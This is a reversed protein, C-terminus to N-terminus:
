FFSTLVNDMVNNTNKVLGVHVLTTEVLKLMKKLNNLSLKEQPPPQEKPQYLSM